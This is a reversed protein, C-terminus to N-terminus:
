LIAAVTGGIVILAAPGNFLSSVHGGDLYNGGLIAAFGAIVGLISLLDM